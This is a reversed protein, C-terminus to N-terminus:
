FPIIGGTEHVFKGSKYHEKIKRELSSNESLSDLDVDSISNPSTTYVFRFVDLGGCLVPFKEFRSNFSLINSEPKLLDKLEPALLWSICMFGKFSIEPYLKEIFSKGEALSKEVVDATFAGQRPIHVSILSDGPAYFMEWENKSLKTLEKEVISAEKNVANGEYFEETEKYVTKFSGEEDKADVTGLIFGSKHVPVDAVMLLKVDGAKNKFARIKLKINQRIEFNFREIKFLSANKHTTCWLFYLLNFSFRGTLNTSLTINGDIGTATAEIIKPDVGKNRLDTYAERIRALMPYFAFIDYPLSEKGKPAEPFALGKFVEEHHKKVKLMIYLTKAFLVLDKNERVKPLADIVAELHTTFFPFDEATQRIYEETLWFPTDDDKLAEEYSEDFFDSIDDMNLRKLLDNM